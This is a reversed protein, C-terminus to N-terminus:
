VAPNLGIFPAGELVDGMEGCVLGNEDCAQFFHQFLGIGFEAPVYCVLVGVERSGECFSRILQKSVYVFLASGDEGHKGSHILSSEGPSANVGFVAAEGYSFPDFKEQEVFGM